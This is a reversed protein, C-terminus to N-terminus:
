AGTVLLCIPRRINLSAESELERFEPLLVAPGPMNEYERIAQRDTEARWEERHKEGARSFPQAGAAKEPGRGSGWRGRAIIRRDGGPGSAQWSNPGGVGGGERAAVDSGGGAADTGSRLSSTRPKRQLLIAPTSRHLLPGLVMGGWCLVVSVPGSDQGKGGQGGGAGGEGPPTAQEAKKPSLTAARRIARGDSAPPHQGARPPGWMPLPPPLPPSRPRPSKGRPRPSTVRPRPSIGRAEPSSEAAVSRRLVM